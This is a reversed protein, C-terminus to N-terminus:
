KKSYNKLHVRNEREMQSELLVFTLYKMRTKCTGSARNKKRAGRGGIRKERHQESQPIETKREELIVTM